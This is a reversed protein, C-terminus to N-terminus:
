KGNEFLGEVKTLIAEQKYGKYRDYDVLVDAIYEHLHQYVEDRENLVNVEVKCDEYDVYTLIYKVVKM